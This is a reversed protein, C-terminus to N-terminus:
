EILYLLENISDSDLKKFKEILVAMKEKNIKKSFMSKLIVNRIMLADHEVREFTKIISKNKIFNNDILFKVRMSMLKKHEYLAHFSRLTAQPMVEEEFVKLLSNYIGLGWTRDDEDSLPAELEKYRYSTNKEFLYDHLNIKLHSIDFSYTPNLTNIKLMQIGKFENDDTFSSSVAQQMSDFSTVNHSYHGQFFDAVHFIKQDLDYGFVFIDHTSHNDGSKYLPIYFTDISLYIYYGMDICNILFDCADINCKSFLVKNVSQMELLPYFTRHLPEYTDLYTDHSTEGKYTACFLQIHNNFLWENFNNHKALVSTINAHKPYTQIAPKHMALKKQM